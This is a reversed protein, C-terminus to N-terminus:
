PRDSERTAEVEAQFQDLAIQEPTRPDVSVDRYTQVHAPDTNLYEVLKHFQEAEMNAGVIRNRPDQTKSQLKEALDFLARLNDLFPLPHSVLERDGVIKNMARISLATM